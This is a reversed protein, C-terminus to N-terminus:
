PLEVGPMERLLDDTVRAPNTRVQERSIVNVTAAVQRPSQPIRSASVVVDPLLASGPALSINVTELADAGIHITRTAPESGLKAATLPYNGTTLAELRYEGRDNTLAARSSGSIAVRVGALPRGTTTETVTGSLVTRTQAIARAPHTLIAAAALAFRVSIRVLEPRTM